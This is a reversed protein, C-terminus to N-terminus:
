TRALSGNCPTDLSKMLLSKAREILWVHLCVMGYGVREEPTMDIDRGMSVSSAVIQPSSTLPLTLYDIKM